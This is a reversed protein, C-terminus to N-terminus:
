VTALGKTHGSFRVFTNGRSLLGDTEEQNLPSAVIKSNKYARMKGGGYKM